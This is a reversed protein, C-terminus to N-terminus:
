FDFPLTKKHFNHFILITQSCITSKESPIDEAIRLVLVSRTMTKAATFTVPITVFLLRVTVSQMSKERSINYKLFSTFTYIYKAPDLELGPPPLTLRFATEGIILCLASV